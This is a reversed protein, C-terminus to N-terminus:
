RARIASLSGDLGAVWVTGESGALLPACHVGQASARWSWEPPQLRRVLGNEEVFDADRGSAQLHMAPFHSASGLLAGTRRDLQREQGDCYALEGGDVRLRGSVPSGGGDHKWRRIGSSLDLAHITGSSDGVFVLEGDGALDSLVPKGTQFRWRRAGNSDFAEVWGKIDGVVAGGDDCGLPSGIVGATKATWRLAGTRADLVAVEGASSAVALGDGARAPAGLFSGNFQRRWLMLVDPHPAIFERTAVRPTGQDDCLVALQHAGGELPFIAVKARWTEDAHKWTVPLPEGDLVLDPPGSPARVVLEVDAERAPAGAEPQEITLSPRVRYRLAKELLLRPERGDSFRYAVRLTGSAVAVELYGRLGNAGGPSLSGCQVCDLGGVRRVALWDEEGFFVAAIDHGDCAARLELNQMASLERDGPGHHVFLFVPKRDANRALDDRLWKLQLPSFCPRPDCPTASCLAVFHAGSRDFSYVLGGFRKDFGEFVPNTSMDRRGAAAFWPLGVSDLLSETVPWSEGGAGSHTLNGCVFLLEPPPADIGLSPFIQREHLATSLWAFARPAEVDQPPVPQKGHLHLGTDSIVAFSLEGTSTAPRSSASTDPSSCAAVLCAILLALVSDPSNTRLR